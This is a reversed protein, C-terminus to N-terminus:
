RLNAAAVASPPGHQLHRTASKGPSTALSEPLPLLPYRSVLYVIGCLALAKVNGGLLHGSFSLDNLPASCLLFCLLIGHTGTRRSGYRLLYVVYLTWPAYLQILTYDHSVPPLLVSAITLFLLQNLWPLTRVRFLYLLAGTLAAAALYVGAVKPLQRQHGTLVFCLKVVAFLSHDVGSEIPNYRYIYYNRFKQLGASLGHLAISFTPGLMATALMFLFTCCFLGIFVQKWQKRALPLGLLFIPYIKLAGGLGILASALKRHGAAYLWVASTVVVWVFLETNSEIYEFAFPQSILIASLSFALAPLLALGAQYLMRTFFSTALLYFTLELTVFWRVPNGPLKYFSQYIFAVPAPYNFLQQFESFFARTHIQEFRARFCTLDFNNSRPLPMITYASSNHLVSSTHVQFVTWGYGM